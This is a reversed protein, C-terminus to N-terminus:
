VGEAPPSAPAVLFPRVDDPTPADGVADVVWTTGDVDVSYRVAAPHQDTAPFNPAVQYIVRITTTM